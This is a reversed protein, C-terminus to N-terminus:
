GHTPNHGLPLVAAVRVGSPQLSEFSFTGGLGQARERMGIVGYQGSDAWDPAAGIGNDS